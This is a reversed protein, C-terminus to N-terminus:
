PTLRQPFPAKPVYPPVKTARPSDSLKQVKSAHTHREAEDQDEAKSNSEDGPVEIRNDIQKGSRLTIISKAQEHYQGQNSNSGIECQGNPNAVPQSPLKGKERENLTTALQGVQVELKAISQANAHLSQQNALLVQQTDKQFQLSSQMFLSLTKM